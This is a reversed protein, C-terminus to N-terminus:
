ELYMDKLKKVEEDSIHLVEKRFNDFSGYTNSIYEKIANLYGENVLFLEKYTKDLLPSDIDKRLSEIIKLTDKELIENTILFDAEKEEECIDLISLFFYTSIGVRDKGVSCHFLILDEEKELEKIFSSFHALCFSDKVFNLYLDRMFEYGDDNNIHRTVFDVTSDRKIQDNERTIGMHAENLIPNSIYKVGKIFTDKKQIQEAETRLDIVKSLHFEDKLKKKDNESIDFLTGSRLIKKYKIKRGDKSTLGGLDRTNNLTEFRILKSTNMNMNGRM